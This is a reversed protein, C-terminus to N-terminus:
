PTVARPACPRTSPCPERALTTSTSPSSATASSWRGATSWCCSWRRGRASCWRPSRTPSTPTRCRTWGGSRSTPWSARSWRASRPRRPGLVAAGGLTAMELADRVPLAQPGGTARAFLLAHRVEELMSASRTAPPATSASGSRAGADRLDRPGPSARARAPRQVVPLAGGRHRHRRDEDVADDDLHVAHAFWVDPGLWGLSEMYDVPSCGFRERCYEEEDLTEALHTHLLVGAGRPGARGGRAAPRRDGLVALLAGRRGAADLGPSPDHWRDIAAETALLVADLDEVVHDPPLGGQSQGLDMSGRTPHFRLGVTRPPRSRPPWCTVATARSSTTTTPARRAAPAPWGPWAAAPPSTARSARRHPGVGPLADTLWSSCPTTSPAARPDGVPLPPPPHQGPRAHAPLRGGDVYRDRGRPGGRARAGRRGRHDPQGGAGRPRVPAGRPRRGDHRRARGRHGHTSM